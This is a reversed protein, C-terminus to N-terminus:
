GRIRREEGPSPRHARDACRCPPICAKEQRRTANLSGLLSLAEASPSAPEAHYIVVQQGHAGRVDFSHYTLSLTGVEPHILEKAGHAKGYVTHSHWLTAFEESTETLSSVLDHLRPYHPQLGTAQRLSSVVAEAARHWQAYFSRGAPDLFTMRALNDAREFPSFLADALSNAALFDLAPNLVFAPTNAYGSLLQNLMPSVTERPQTRHGDPLTDALRYLHDRAQQDMRLADSIADLIQPSPNQERGQELRAYYDSNMGALVAVEERRLGAVRRRGYSPLGADGPRLRARHARLFDGLSNSTM